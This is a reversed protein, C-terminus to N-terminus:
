QSRRHRGHERAAVDVRVPYAGPIGPVLGHAAADGRRVLVDDVLDAARETVRVPDVRGADSPLHIGAGFATVTLAVLMGVPLAISPRIWALEYLYITTGQKM